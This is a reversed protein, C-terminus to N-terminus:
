GGNFQLQVYIIERMQVLREIKGKVALSGAATAAASKKQAWLISSSECFFGPMPLPRHIAGMASKDAKPPYELIWNLFTFNM